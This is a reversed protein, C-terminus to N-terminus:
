EIVEDARALLTPPVEIGLAKATKLNIVLEFRTSQQVPLDAPREGKLIRATYMAALRYADTRSAGYSMLGGAAPYEPSDYIAPISHRTAFDLLRSRRTLFWPDGGVLLAAAQRDAFTAFARELDDDSRADQVLVNLGLARAAAEVSHVDSPANPNDTRMVYAILAGPRVLPNLLELNKAMLQNALFTVGTVNAGPRNLSAVRGLKVPDGGSTFVIPIISTSAKAALGSASGGTAAIVAVQRAVLNAALAPLRDYRGDAWRYEIELNQGEVYGAQNLGQRFANVHHANEVSSVGSLFGIVPMAPQQARVALPWAAAGGLLTIFERRRM